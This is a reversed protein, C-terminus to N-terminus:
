AAVRGRRDVCEDSGEGGRRDGVGDLQKLFLEVILLKDHQAIIQMRM